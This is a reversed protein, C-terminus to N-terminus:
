IDLLAPILAVTLTAVGTVVGTVCVTVLLSATAVGTKFVAGDAAPLESISSKINPTTASM